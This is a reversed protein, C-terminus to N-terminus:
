YDDSSTEDSSDAPEFGAVLRWRGNQQKAYLQGVGWGVGTGKNLFCPACMNAWGIQGNLAGDIFLGRSEFSGGCADCHDIDYAYQAEKLQVEARKVLAALKEESADRPELSWSGAGDDNDGDSSDDSEFEEGLEEAEQLLTNDADNIKLKCDGSALDLGVVADPFSKVDPVIALGYSYDAFEPPEGPEAIWSM